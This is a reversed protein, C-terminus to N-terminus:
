DYSKRIKDINRNFKDFIIHEDIGNSPKWKEVTTIKNKGSYTESSILTNKMLDKANIEVKTNLYKAVIKPMESFGRTENNIDIIKSKSDKPFLRNLWFQKEYKTYIPVANLYLKYGVYHETFDSNVIYNYYSIAEISQWNIFCNKDFLLMEITIGKDDAFLKNQREEIQKQRKESISFGFILGYILVLPFFAFTSVTIWGLLGVDWKLKIAFFLLLFGIISFASLPLIFFGLFSFQSMLRRSKVVRKENLWRSINEKLIISLSVLVFVVPILYLGFSKYGSKIYFSIVGLGAILIFVGVLKAITKENLNM